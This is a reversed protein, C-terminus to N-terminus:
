YVKCYQPVGAPLASAWPSQEFGWPHDKMFQWMAVQAEPTAQCHGGGHNCDVVFSGHDKARMDLLDSTESFSAIVMDTSGGHLTLIAPAHKDQWEVVAYEPAVLGGSNLAAAAVYSSRMLAMCGGQLAGFSCGTTYIRRPDIGHNQVACAAIQDAADFDAENHVKSGSCDAGSMSSKSGDFAAIIGGGSLIEAQQEASFGRMVEKPSSGNGHWYFVLAGGKGPAGAAIVIGGHGAVMITTGDRFEPCPGRIAPLVPRPAATPPLSNGFGADPRGAAGTPGPAGAAPIGASGTMGAGIPAGGDSMPTMAITGAVGGARGSSGLAGASGGADTSASSQRNSMADGAKGGTPATASPAVTPAATRETSDTIPMTDAPMMTGLPLDPVATCAAAFLVYVTSAV